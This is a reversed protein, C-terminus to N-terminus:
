FPCLSDRVGRLRPFAPRPSLPDRRGGWGESKLETAQVLGTDGRSPDGTAEPGGLEGSVRSGSGPLRPQSIKKKKKKKGGEGPARLGRGRGGGLHRRDGSPPGEQPWSGFPGSLSARGLSDQPGGLRTKPCPGRYQKSSLGSGGGQHTPSDLKPPFAPGPSSPDEPFSPVRHANFSPQLAPSARDPWAQNTAPPLPPPAGRSSHGLPPQPNMGRFYPSRWEEQQLSTHQFGDAEM